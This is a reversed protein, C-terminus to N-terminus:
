FFHFIFLYPFSFTSLEEPILVLSFFVNGLQLVQPEDKM